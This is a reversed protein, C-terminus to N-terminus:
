RAVAGGGIARDGGALDVLDLNTRAAIAAPALQPDLERAVPGASPSAPRRPPVICSIESSTSCRASSIRSRSRTPSSARALVRNRLWTVCSSRVGSAPTIPMISRATPSTLAAVRASWRALARADARWRSSSISSRRSALRSSVQRM